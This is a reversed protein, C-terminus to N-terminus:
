IFGMEFLFVSMCFSSRYYKLRIWVVVQCAITVGCPFLVSFWSDFNLIQASSVSDHTPYNILIYSWENRNSCHFVCSQLFWLCFHIEGWKPFQLMWFLPAPPNPTQPPPPTSSETGLSPCRTATDEPPCPNQTMVHLIPCFHLFSGEHTVWKRFSRGTLEM